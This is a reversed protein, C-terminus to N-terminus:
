TQQTKNNSYFSPNTYTNAAPGAYGALTTAVRFGSSTSIDPIFDFTLGNVRKYNEEYRRSAERILDSRTRSEVLAIHDISALLKPPLNVLVKSKIM